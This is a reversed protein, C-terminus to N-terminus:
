QIVLKLTQSGLESVANIFYVGSTLSNLHNELTTHNLGNFHYNFLQRGMIDFVTLEASAGQNLMVHVEGQSPNPYVSLVNGSYPEIPETTALLEFAKSFDPIGYGNYSDPSSANNGCQRIVDCMEQVSAYPRAQRLCAVAGALVPTAFSTGNSNYYEWGWDAYGAAVYTGEGMAMVDPKIRGDYTPGVSSFSARNGDADVAGITLIHEADGPIGLTCTGPGDNGAANVCIMGRSAAIEAGITMPATHGDFHSFPHDWQSMDFGVYGLSTSCVDVGLSDAYEAGSVWNYEEVINETEGDETHILYYSAKPATGVMDDPDYAAMTSLCSTGHTSQSYVTTSGYVYDRVGLFRGEERMNDFCPQTETGIFGGDLVAIVVGTGDYGMDHLVNVKLQTVQTEAGGYYGRLGRNVVVPKMEDALWRQKQEQAKLDNPCNRVTSVFALGNIADIVSPDTVHVTVGNLWKSPNLLEAGCNAVAQLYQPNVPIDYEDITIGLNARRQLARPSLYAEPNDISYPSNAKDTFQVWYIDTAVQAQAFVVVTLFLLM